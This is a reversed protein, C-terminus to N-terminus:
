DNVSFCGWGSFQEFYNDEFKLRHFIIWRQSSHINYLLISNFVLLPVM